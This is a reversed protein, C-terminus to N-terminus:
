RHHSLASSFGLNYETHIKNVHKLTINEDNGPIVLVPASKDQGADDRDCSEDVEVCPDESANLSNKCNISSLKEKTVQIRNSNKM